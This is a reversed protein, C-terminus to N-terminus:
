SFLGLRYGEAIAGAHGAKWIGRIHCAQNIALLSSIHYILRPFLSYCNGPREGDREERFGESSEEGVDRGFLLRGNEDDVFGVQHPDLDKGLDMGQELKVEIGLGKDRQDEASLVTQEILQHIM